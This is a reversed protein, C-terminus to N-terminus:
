NLVAVFRTGRPTNNEILLTGDYAEIIGKVIHLGLGHGPTQSDLRVGRQLIILKLDEEIGAGDDAVTVTTASRYSALSKNTVSILVERNAWKLANELLNGVLDMWDGEDGFFMVTEDALLSIVLNKDRYLKQLSSIIRQTSEYVAIPKAFRRQGVAAAGQLQYDIINQMASLQREAEVRNLASYNLGSLIAIPTKLSHALNGLVDKQRAIRQQESILLQNLNQTLRNVEIPYDEDFHQRTGREIEGVQTTVRVLPQLAWSLLLLLLTLLAIGMGLLWVIIQKQYGALRAAYAVTSEAVQITLPIDGQDTEWEAAFSVAYIPTQPAWTPKEFFKFEGLDGIMQPLKAELLSKSRWVLGQSPTSIQAFLDSDTQSLRPESLVTPAVIGGEEVDINAMLLLVQNKLGDEANSLVSKEFANNLAIGMAGLFVLLLLSASILLRQRLSYRSFNLPVRM